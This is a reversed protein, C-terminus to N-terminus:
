VLGPDYVERVVNQSIPVDSKHNATAWPPDRLDPIRRSLCDYEVLAQPAYPPLSLCFSCLSLFDLTFPFIFYFQHPLRFSLHAVTVNSAKSHQLRACRPDDPTPLHLNPFCGIAQIIHPPISALALATAGGARLSDSQSDSYLRYAIVAPCLLPYSRGPYIRPFPPRWCGSDWAHNIDQHHKLIVALNLLHLEGTSLLLSTTVPARPHTSMCM